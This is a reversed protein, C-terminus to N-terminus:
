PWPQRNRASPKAFLGDALPRLVTRNQAKDGVPRAVFLPASTWSSASVSSVDKSDGIRLGLLSGVATIYAVTEAPLPRGTTLYDEYRKPGANYAALFGGEGYRDHLERLYAAGAIINDRPDYPDAGLGHRSRLESWTDPMIQMLGMAGKPSLARPDGFSEVRMVARIWSAPIAFRQAARNVFDEIQTAAVTDGNASSPQAHTPTACALLVVAASSYLCPRWFPQLRSKWRCVAALLTAPVSSSGSREPQAGTPSPKRPTCM